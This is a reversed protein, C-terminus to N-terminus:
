RCGAQGGGPLEQTFIQRRAPPLWTTYEVPRAPADVLRPVRSLVVFYYPHVAPVMKTYWLEVVPPETCVVRRYADPPNEILPSNVYGVTELQTWGDFEFGGDIATRPVGTGELNAAAVSRARAIAFADHATAVGYFAYLTLAAWSWSSVRAAVKAQYYRLLPVSALPLFAILYRDYALSGVSRVVLAPLWATAFALGLILAGAAPSNWLIGSRRKWLVLGASAFCLIVAATLLHRFGSGLILPPTGVAVLGPWTPQIGYETLINGMDPLKHDRLVGAAYEAVLVAAVVLAGRLRSVTRFGSPVFAILVPLLIMGATLVLNIVLSLSQFTLHSVAGQKWQDLTHEVLIYPKRLFWNVSYAIIAITLLWAAGLGIAVDRKRRQVWVLVPLFLLPALWYIQRDLGSLVGAVATLGGWALCTRTTGAKWSRVASYFCLTFLFFAPVDSLFTATIPLVLPSLVTLLTGFLAFASELGCELCLDYLMPILAVGLVITSLRMILFSFGFLKIFLALWVIQPLLMVATFGNYEIHGTSAFVLAIHSYSWDDEFGMEYVPMTAAVALLFLVICLLVNRRDSAAFRTRGQADASHPDYKVAASQPDPAPTM